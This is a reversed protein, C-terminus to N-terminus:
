KPSIKDLEAIIIPKLAELVPTALDDMKSDSLKVSEEIWAIMAEVIVKAGVELVPMGKEELKAMLDKVDFASVV